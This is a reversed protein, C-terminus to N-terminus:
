RLLRVSAPTEYSLEVDVRTRCADVVEFKAVGANPVGFRSRWALRRPRDAETNATWQVNVGRFGLRWQSTGEDVMRVDLLSIGAWEPMRPLDAYADFCAAQPANVIVRTSTTILRSPARLGDAVSFVDAVAFLALWALAAM